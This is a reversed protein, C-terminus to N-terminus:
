GPGIQPAVLTLWFINPPPPAYCFGRSSSGLNCGALRVQLSVVLIPWEDGWLDEVSLVGSITTLLAASVGVQPITLLTLIVSPFFVWSWLFGIFCCRTFGSSISSSAWPCTSFHWSRLFLCLLSNLLILVKESPFLRLIVMLFTVYSFAVTTSLLIPLTQDM